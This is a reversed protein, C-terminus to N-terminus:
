SSLVSIARMFADEVAESIGIKQAGKLFRYSIFTLFIDNMFRDWAHRRLFLDWQTGHVLNPNCGAHSRVLIGQLLLNMGWITQFLGQFRSEKDCFLGLRSM